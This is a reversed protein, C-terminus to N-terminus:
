YDNGAIQELGEILIKVWIKPISFDGRALM